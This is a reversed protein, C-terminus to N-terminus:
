HAANDSYPGYSMGYGVVKWNRGSGNLDVHVIGCGQHELLQPVKGSLRFFLTTQASSQWLNVLHWDGEPLPKKSVFTCLEASLNPICKGKSAERLFRGAETEAARSRFPNLITTGTAPENYEGCDRGNKDSLLHTHLIVPRSAVM